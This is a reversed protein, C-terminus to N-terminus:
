HLDPPPAQRLMPSVNSADDPSCCVPAFSVVPSLFFSPQRCPFVTLQRANMPLWWPMRPALAGSRASLAGSVVTVPGRIESLNHKTFRKVLSKM